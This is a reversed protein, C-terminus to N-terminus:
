TYKLIDNYGLDLMNLMYNKSPKNFCNWINTLIKPYIDADMLPYNLCSIKLTNIDLVPINNSFGGDLYKKNDITKIKDDLLYPVCASAHLVDKYHEYSTFKKIIVNKPIINTIETVSIHCRNKNKIFKNFRKEDIYKELISMYIKVQEHLMLTHNDIDIIERIICKLINLRNIDNEYCLIIGIIGAGGSAGLYKINKFKNPNKFIYKVVGLHYICNYGGGSFSISSYIKRESNKSHIKLIQNYYDNDDNYTYKHTDIYKSNRHKISNNEAKKYGFIDFNIINM